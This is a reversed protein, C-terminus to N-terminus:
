GGRLPPMTLTERRCSRKAIEAAAIILILTIITKLLFYLM